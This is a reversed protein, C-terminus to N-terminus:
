GPARHCRTAKCWGRITPIPWGKRFLIVQWCSTAAATLETHLVRSRHARCAAAKRAAIIWSVDRDIPRAPISFTSRRSKDQEIAQKLDRSGAADAAFFPRPRKKRNRAASISPATVNPADVSPVKFKM